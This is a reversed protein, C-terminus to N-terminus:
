RASPDPYSMADAMTAQWQPLDVTSHLPTTQAASAEIDIATELVTRMSKLLRVKITQLIDIPLGSPPYWPHITSHTGPLVFQLDTSERDAILEALLDCCFCSRKSVGIAIGEDQLIETVFNVGLAHAMLASEAHVSAKEFGEVAKNLAEQIKESELKFKKRKLVAEIDKRLSDIFAGDLAM